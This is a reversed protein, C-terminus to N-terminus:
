CDETFAGTVGVLLCITINSCSLVLVSIPLSALNFCLIYFGVPKRKLHGDHLHRLSFCALFGHVTVVATGVFLRSLEDNVGQLIFVFAVFGFAFAIICVSCLVWSFYCRSRFRLDLPRIGLYLRTSVMAQRDNTIIYKGMLFV